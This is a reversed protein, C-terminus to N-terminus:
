YSKSKSGCQKKVLLIFAWVLIFCKKEIQYFPQIFRIGFDNFFFFIM